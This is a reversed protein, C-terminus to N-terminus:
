REVKVPLPAAVYQFAYQFATGNIQDLVVHMPTQAEASRLFPLDRVAIVVLCTAIVTLVAKTYRDTMM